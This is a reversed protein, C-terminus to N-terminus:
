QSTPVNEKAQMKRGYLQLEEGTDRPRMDKDGGLWGQGWHWILARPSNRLTRKRGQVARGTIENSKM